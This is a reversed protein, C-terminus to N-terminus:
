FKLNEVNRWRVAEYSWPLLVAAAALVLWCASGWWIAIQKEVLGKTNAAAGCISVLVIFVIWTFFTIGMVLAFNLQVLTYLRDKNPEEGHSFRVTWGQLFITFILFSFALLPAEPDAFGAQVGVNHSSVFWCCPQQRRYLYQSRRPCICAWQTQTM